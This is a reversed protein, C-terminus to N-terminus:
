LSLITSFDTCTSDYSLFSLSMWDLYITNEQPWTGSNGSGGGRSDEDDEDEDEDEEDVEDQQQQQLVLPRPVDDFVSPDFFRMRFDRRKRITDLLPMNKMVNVNSFSNLNMREQQITPHELMFGSRLPSYETTRLSKLQFLSSSSPSPSAVSDNQKDNDKCTSMMGLAVISDRASSPPPSSGTTRALAFLLRMIHDGCKFSSGAAATENSQGKNNGIGESEEKEPLLLDSFAAELRSADQHNGHNRRLNWCIEDVSRSMRGSRTQGEADEVEGEGEHAANELAFPDPFLLLDFVKRLSRVHRTVEGTVQSSSRWYVSGSGGGGGGGSSACASMFTSAIDACVSTFNPNLSHALRDTLRYSM